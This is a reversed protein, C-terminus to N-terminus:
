RGDIFDFQRRFLQGQNDRLGINTLSQIRLEFLKPFLRSVLVSHSKECPRTIGEIAKYFARLAHFRNLVDDILHFRYLELM